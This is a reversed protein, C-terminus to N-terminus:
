PTRTGCVPSFRFGPEAKKGFKSNRFGPEANLLGPEANLLWPEAAHPTWAEEPGPEAIKRDPSGKRAGAGPGSKNAGGM